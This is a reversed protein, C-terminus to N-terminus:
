GDQEFKGRRLVSPRGGQKGGGLRESTADKDGENKKEKEFGYRTIKGEQQDRFSTDLGGKKLVWEGEWRCAGKGGKKEAVSKAKKKLALHRKKGRTGKTTTGGRTCQVERANGLL